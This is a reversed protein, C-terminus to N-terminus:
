TFKATKIYYHLTASLCVYLCVSVRRRCIGRNAYRRETFIPSSGDLLEPTYPALIHQM